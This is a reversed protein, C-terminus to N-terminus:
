SKFVEDAYVKNPDRKQIHYLALFTNTFLSLKSATKSKGCLFSKTFNQKKKLPFFFPLLYTTWFFSSSSIFFIIANHKITQKLKDKLGKLETAVASQFQSLIREKIQRSVGCLRIGGARNSCIALPKPYVPTLAIIKDVQTWVKINRLSISSRAFAHKRGGSGRHATLLVCALM